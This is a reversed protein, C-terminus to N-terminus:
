VFLFVIRCLCTSTGNTHYYLPVDTFAYCSCNGHALLQQPPPSDSRESPSPPTPPRESYQSHDAYNAANGYPQYQGMNMSDYVMGYDGGSNPYVDYDQYNSHYPDNYHRDTPLFTDILLTGYTLVRHVSFDLVINSQESPPIHDMYGAYQSHAPGVNPGALDGQYPGSVYEIESNEPALHHMERVVKSVTSVQPLFDCKFITRM